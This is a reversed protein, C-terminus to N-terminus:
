FFLVVVDSILVCWAVDRLTSFREIHNHQSIRVCAQSADCHFLVKPNKAKAVRVLEAIPQLVGVENNALMM